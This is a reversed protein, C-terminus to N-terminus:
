RRGGMGIHKMASEFDARCQEKAQLEEPTPPEVPGPNFYPLRPRDDADDEDGSRARASPAARQPQTRRLKATKFAHSVYRGLKAGVERMTPARDEVAAESALDRAGDAIAEVVTEVRAGTSVRKGELELALRELGGAPVTKDEAEARRLVDHSALASTIQRSPDPSAQNPGVDLPGHTHADTPESATRPESTEPEEVRKEEQHIPIPIPDSHATNPARELPRALVRESRTGSDAVDPEAVPAVEAVPASKDANRAARKARPPALPRKPMAPESVDVDRAEGEAVDDDDELEAEGEGQRRAWETKRRKAEAKNREVEACSLNWDLYGHVVYGLRREDYRWLPPFEGHPTLLQELAKKSTRGGGLLPVIAREIFGDTTYRACHAIGAVWLRFALPSLWFIKPHSYFSDDLRVWTM